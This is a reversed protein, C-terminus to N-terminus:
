EDYDDDNASVYSGSNIGVPSMQELYGSNQIPLTNIKYPKRM